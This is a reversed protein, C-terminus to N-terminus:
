FKPIHLCFCMGKEENVKADLYAKSGYTLKLRQAINVLGVRKYSSVDEDDMQQFLRNLHQCKEDPMGIGNDSIEIQVNSDTEYVYISIVSNPERDVFGHVISNEIIPQILLRPIQFEELEKQIDIKAAIDTGNRMNMIELYDYILQCEKLLTNPVNVRMYSRLLSILSDIKKSHFADGSLSLNCKISNLTNMLFHPHIQASLSQLELLKKAEQEEKMRQILDKIQDLMHNFAHGIIAIEDKGKVHFRVSLNGHAFERVIKEFKRLPKILSKSMVIALLFFVLILSVILSVFLFFTKTISGTIEAQSMESVLTWNARSITQEFRLIHKNKFSNTQYYAIRKGDQDELSLRGMEISKFVNAFYSHPIRIVLTGLYEGSGQHRIVRAFFYDNEGSKETEIVGLSQITRTNSMDVRSDIKRWYQSLQELKGYESAHIIFGKPNVFFIKSQAGVMKTELLSLFDKIQLVSENEQFSTIKKTEVLSTLKEQTNIDRSMLVTSFTIDDITNTVDNRITNMVQQNSTTIRETVDHRIIYYTIISCITFPLIILFLLSFQIRQYFSLNNKLKM